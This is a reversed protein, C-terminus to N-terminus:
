ESDSVYGGCPTPSVTRPVNLLSISVRKGRLLLWFAATAFAFFWLTRSPPWRSIAGRLLMRRECYWRPDCSTCCAAGSCDGAACSGADCCNTGFGSCVWWCCCSAVGGGGGCDSNPDYAPLPDPLSILWTGDENEGSDLTGSCFLPPSLFSIFRLGTGPDVEHAIRPWVQM